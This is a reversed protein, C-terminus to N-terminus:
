PSPSVVPPNPTSGSSTSTRASNTGNAAAAASSDSAREDDSDADKADVPDKDEESDVRLPPFSRLRLVRPLVQFIKVPEKIGYLKHSGMDTVLPWHNDKFREDNKKVKDDTLMDFVEQTCVVQGGHATDSVRASRNVVPGFYDMRGTVPNRRCNPHGTHIGMRVRIGNFVRVAAGKDDKVDVVSAASLKLFPEPWSCLVLAEQCALCWLIAELATFFAVMFADGETKVEYGRFKKLLIRLVRDHQELSLDMADPVKEWLTTSSQVDTFVFTVQGTPAEERDDFV